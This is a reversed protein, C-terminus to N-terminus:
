GRPPNEKFLVELDQAGHLIRAIGIPQTAPDYVILYSFVSWFKVPENTLDARLHGAGPNEGLFGMAAEIADHVHRVLLTGGKAILYDAIDDLDGRAESSLRYSNM